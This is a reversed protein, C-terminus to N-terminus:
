QYNLRHRATLTAAHARKGTKAMFNQLETRSTNYELVTDDIDPPAEVLSFKGVKTLKKKMKVAMKNKFLNLVFTFLRYM